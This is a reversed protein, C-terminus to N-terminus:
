ERSLGFVVITPAGAFKDTVWLLSPSGSVAAIYQRGQAAYTVVGGGMSGGTNFRYLERGTQADFALFDGTLEGTLLLNGGTSTVAALMPRPSRYKWKIAGTSADLATLWGQSRNPPDLKFDGGMYLKGPIYRPDEFATFTTCWDVAPVYLMNNGPHYAPGNWEVGGLVGPCSRTPNTTIPTNANEITTLTATYLIEHTDRDIARLFGDKGATVVLRRAAGNITTDFIPSAHTLDWDHSDNPVLQSYWRLKGTRVDLVIMANTYLNTGERLNAPLDPSPNTVAVHLDGTRTDLAFPTWIAGGGHPIGMPDKWTEFGPEGQKPVTNFRWVPSGDTLRFAGVWGKINNESGAPGILVLDEFIMPATSFTEGEETKATRRAWVLAGTNANMAVLYGDPTGRVLYGDKIAVGRNREWVTDGRPTWTEKWKPKCTAADLAITSLRTTLYMVGNYVIPGTQFNDVEGVQFVCVPALRSANGANIQNLPSYRTGAYDRAHLLWDGSQAAANLAAQNPGASQPRAAPAGSVFEERSAAAAAEPGFGVVPGYSNQFKGAWAFPQDLGRSGLALTTAGAAYGNSQLIFAVVAAYDEMPLRQAGNPPMSTRVIYLLDDVKVAPNSWSSQFVPGSLAPAGGGSLAAGHCAACSQAYVARGREAQASTFLDAPTTAAAQANAATPSFLVLGCFSFVVFFSTSALQRMILEGRLM